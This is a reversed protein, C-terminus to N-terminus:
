GGYLWLNLSKSYSYNDSVSININERVATISKEQIQEMVWVFCHKVDTGRLRTEPQLVKLHLIFKGFGELM